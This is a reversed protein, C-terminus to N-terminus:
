GNKAEKKLALRCATAIEEQELAILHERLVRRQIGLADLHAIKEQTARSPLEIVLKALQSKNLAMITSGRLMQRIKEQTEHRNLYWSLYGSTILEGNIRIVHIQGAPFLPLDSGEFLRAPYNLGRGPMLIDGPQVSDSLKREDIKVRSLRDFEDPRWSVLDKISFIRVNGEPTDVPAKDRFVLPTKITAVVELPVLELM